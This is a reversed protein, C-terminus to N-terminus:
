VTLTYPDGEKYGSAEPGTSCAPLALAAAMTGALVGLTRSRYRRTMMSSEKPQSVNPM